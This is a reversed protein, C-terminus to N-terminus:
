LERLIIEILREYSKQLEKQFKEYNDQTLPQYKDISRIYNNKDAWLILWNRVRAEELVVRSFLHTVLIGRAVRAERVITSDLFDIDRSLQAIQRICDEFEEVPEFCIAIDKFERELQIEKYTSKFNSTFQHFISFPLSILSLCLITILIANIIGKGRKFINKIGM